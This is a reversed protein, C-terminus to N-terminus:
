KPWVIGIKKMRSELTTPKLGLLKAAGREGSVRWSTKELVDIIHNREVVELKFTKAADPSSLVPPVLKLTKGTSIIMANEIINRLERINGPWPYRYLADISPQSIKEITKGISKEYEKVLSWVLMPIDEIRDRLPPVTIPFVNLRYYLDERFKGESVARALDRNTSAIIRVNVSITQPNGLREFQGEQLVRLLKAQVDLPLEGIEDLFITSGDAIEFRGIQRTMAGTYAGKERGFLESEILTAPLAACNVKVMQRNKYKSLKHISRALLEKGTGTEGLILVTSDTKAVQEARNLMEMVPKSRGIIEEHRYNVEIEERLYINEQELRDKLQKIENFAEGIKDDARKRLLANSFIQTLLKCRQILAEPWKQERRMSSLTIGGQVVGAAELPFFMASQIGEKLLYEKEAQAEDPLETPQSFCVIEGGLLKQTFWPQHPSYLIRPSHKIGERASSHTLTLKKHDRSFEFLNGRDLDLNQVVLQLGREINKDIESAKIDIFSASLNSLMDQFQLQDYLEEQSRIRFLTAGIIDAVIKLRNVIPPPYERPHDFTDLGLMGVSQEQVSVPVVAGSTIGNRELWHRLEKAEDPLGALGPGAIIVGGNRIHQALWPIVSTFDVGLIYPPIAVGEPTWINEIQLSKMDGSLHGFFARETGLFRGLAQLTSNISDELQEPGTQALQAAIDAIVKEFELQEALAQEVRKNETIDIAIGGLLKKGSELKIPFKIDRRWRTDGIDATEWEETIRPIDESLVKRDLAILMDAIDSPWLDRTTKGIFEEPKKKVSILAEPNAYIHIDNEDKIYVAAPMNDMFARFREQSEKLKVDLQKLETIDHVNTVVAPVQGDAERLPYYRADMYRRGWGPFDIWEQYNVNKGAFCQKYHSKMITEFFKRGFLESVSQGIIENASKKFAQCYPENVYQYIFNRDVLGIPNNTSEVIHRFQKIEDTREEVQTELNTRLRSLALHTDVRARVEDAQFPKTIFDVAGATFGKVKDELEDLASLFLIPIGSSKENAKIQRCVEFGDMGPMKVDLIILEPPKTDIVTLAMPGDPVGRVEYGQNTLMSSLTNLSPLDDDVILVDGRASDTQKNVM